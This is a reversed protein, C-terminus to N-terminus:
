INRQTGGWPFCISYNQLFMNCCADYAFKADQDYISDWQIDALSEKFKLANKYRHYVNLVFDSQEAIAGSNGTIHLIAYHEMMNNCLIRRDHKCQVDFQWFTILLRPWIKM